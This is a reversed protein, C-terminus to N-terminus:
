SLLEKCLQVAGPADAANGDAGIQEAFASTVPAGGVIIRVKDRLGAAKLAEIVNRMECMTTTLLASMALIDPNMEKVAQVFKAAGVSVGLDEVQFGQGQLITTVLNKGIDHLDGQVTGIVISGLKKTAGKGALEGKFHDMVASMAKAAIMMEPVFIEGAQYKKGINELSKVLKASLIESASKGSDIEDNVLDILLPEDDSLMASIYNSLTSDEM